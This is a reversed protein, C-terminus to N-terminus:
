RVPIELSPKSALRQWRRCNDLAWATSQSVTDIHGPPRQVAVLLIAGDVGSKTAATDAHALEGIMGRSRCHKGRRGM